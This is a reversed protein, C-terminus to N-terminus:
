PTPPHAALQLLGKWQLTNGQTIKLTTLLAGSLDGTKAQADAIAALTADRPEALVARPEEELEAEAKLAGPIDGREALAMAVASLAQAKPGAIQSPLMAKTRETAVKIEEDTPRSTRNFQATTLARVLAQGPEAVLPGVADAAQLAGSVDGMCAKLRAVEKALVPNERVAAENSSVLLTEILPQAEASYGSVVLLRALQFRLVAQSNRNTEVSNIVKITEPLLWALGASDQHKIASDVLTIYRAAREAVSLRAIAAITENYAGLGALVEVIRNLDLRYQAAQTASENLAIQSARIAADRAAVPDDNEKLRNSLALLGAVDDTTPLPAVAAAVAAQHSISLRQLLASRTAEKTQQPIADGVFTAAAPVGDCATMAEAAAQVPEFMLYPKDVIAAVTRADDAARRALVRGKDAKNARCLLTASKALVVAAAGKDDFSDGIKIAEDIAGAEALAVGITRQALTSSAVASPDASTRLAAISALTKQAGVINGRQAQRRGLEALLSAKVAPANDIHTLAEAASEEGLLVLNKIIQQRANSSLLDNSPGLKTSAKGLVDKARSPYGAKALAEALQALMSAQMSGSMMSLSATAADAVADLDHLTWPKDAARGPIATTIAVTTALVIAQVLKRRMNSRVINSRVCGCLPHLISSVPTEAAHCDDTM